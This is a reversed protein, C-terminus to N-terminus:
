EWVVETTRLKPQAPSSRAAIANDPSHTTCQMALATSSAMSDAAPPSSSLGSNWSIPRLM